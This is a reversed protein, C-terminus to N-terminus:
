PKPAELGADEFCQNLRTKVSETELPDAKTRVALAAEARELPKGDLTIAAHAIEIMEKLDGNCHLLMDCGANLAQESRAKFSGDLAKMSLDDTMLLGDFGIHERIVQSIVDKSLTACQEPDIASYVIHATMAMVAKDVAKFAAFDTEHLTEADTEVRPLELHSDVDGRGHGPIHKIVGVVGRDAMGQLAADAMSAVADPDSHFARDGIIDDAGKIFLDVVPACDCDIGLESLEAAIMQHNLWIAELALEPERDWLHGFVKAPPAARWTPPKLRQVRGGEQDIFIPVDRGIMDRLTGSLRAVQKPRDINRAFLIFGWPDVDRFFAKEDKTIQHGELGYIVSAISM